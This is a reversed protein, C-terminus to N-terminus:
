ATPDDEGVAEGLRRSTPRREGTQEASPQRGGVDDGDIQGPVPGGVVNSGVQPLAGVVEAVVAPSRRVDAVRHASPHREVGREGM